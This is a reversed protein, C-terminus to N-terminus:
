AGIQVPYPTNTVGLLTAMNHVFNMSEHVKLENIFKKHVNLSYSCLVSKGCINSVRYDIYGRYYYYQNHIYVSCHVIYHRLCAKNVSM